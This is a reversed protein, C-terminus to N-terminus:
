AIEFRVEQGPRVQAALPLDDHVVVGIVPYGGTTPHDALLVIPEGSPPVQIAGTVIGESRLEGDRARALPPGTLRLGTRNSAPSATYARGDLGTSFWDDRPGAVIRLTVPGAQPTAPTAAERPHGHAPGLTFRDGDRLPPPGLGTLLDTARSGLVPPGDIGGSFAVYSRLGASAAGIEILAGAAVAHAAGHVAPTGDVTIAAPAGTVAFTLATAARLAPGRVTTELMADGADGGVLALAAELAPLDLAGSPPVGIHAWGPRGRDQITTLPGARVVEIM